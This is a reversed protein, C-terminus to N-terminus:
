KLPMRRGPTPKPAPADGADEGAVENKAKAAVAAAGLRPARRRDPGRRSKGAAAAAAGNVGMGAAAAASSAALAAATPDYTINHTTDVHPAIDLQTHL